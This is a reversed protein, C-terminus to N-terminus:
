RVYEAARDTAPSRRLWEVTEELGARLAVTPTWGLLDRALSPDAVLREVESAAPRVRDPDTEIRPPTGTIEGLLAALDGISIEVGTGLQVTRGVVDAAAAARIFGAVTDTVFTFDRTPRVSGLRVPGGRILQSAITPIVARLSQRPGYTNFPRLVVVPTGFSAHYSLALHDAGAKSAAYPSQPRIPHQETIPTVQATGYVESTSTHVVRRVGSRRASELVNLTGGVNTAVYAEPVIYSYPIAVLAALHFVTDCGDVARDVTPGDRVDGAIIEIEGRITPDLLDLQGRSGRSDYRVFARVTAGEAVLSGALHSGIFGAAGTVLVRHGAL